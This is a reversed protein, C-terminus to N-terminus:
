EGLCGINGTLGIYNLNHKAAEADREDEQSWDRQDFIEKQRFFANDDFNLKADMCIVAFYLPSKHICIVAFYFHPNHICIVVSYLTLIAFAAQTKKETM